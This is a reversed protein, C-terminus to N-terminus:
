ISSIPLAYCNDDIKYIVDTNCILANPGISYRSNSVQKFGSIAAKDYSTGSKCEILQIKGDCLIILDIENQNSDRYYYFNANKRNNKYSKIIENIIYTEVFQGAFRSKALVKPDNLRALYCALGTDNFLIKPRKVIRKTISLENYPELLTIIEGTVLVNVWNKITIASVGIHKAINEYVLEDGTLSALLELFSEFKVKDVINIIQSVDREIYTRIYDSYFDNFDLKPNDFLEPYFGKVVNKYLDNVNIFNKKIRKTNNSLDVTFPKEEINRIESYSLPSVNIIGVRGSLSQSVGEMLNYAQSGTLVYMGYNSFDKFKKDNVIEEIVDFLVPAYQIEDIILPFPHTELFLKPDEKALKRELINDLSVYNYNRDKCLMKCITTKGVQRAGTILTIPRNDISNIVQSYITRKIM